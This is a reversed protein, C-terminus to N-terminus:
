KGIVCASFPLLLPNLLCTTLPRMPARMRNSADQLPHEELVSPGLFCSKRATGLALLDEAPQLCRKPGGTKLNEPRLHASQSPNEKLSPLGYAHTERVM